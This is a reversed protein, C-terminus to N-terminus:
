VDVVETVSTIRSQRAPRLPAKINSIVNAEQKRIGYNWLLAAYRTRLADPDFETAIVKHGYSLCEAYMIMFVDCDLSRSPQQPLDDEFLVDFRDSSKKDKYRPHNQLDIGKKVYFDYAQLYLPIITAIKEIEALVVAYHGSSEYSDYLFICREDSINDSSQVVDSSFHQGSQELGGEDINSKNAEIDVVQDKSQAFAKKMKKIKKRMLGRIGKFGRRVSHMLIKRLFLPKKRLMVRLSSVAVEEVHIDPKSQAQPFIVGTTQKGKKPKSSSAQRIPIPKFVPTKMGNGKAARSTPTRTQTHENVQKRMLPKKAVPTSSDVKQKKKSHENIKRPPPDQFDDDSDVSREHQITDKKPIQLKTLEKKMPQINKFVVKLAIKPLVNSCCEYLWVQIALPMGQILYFQGGAKLQNNLSRALDEFSLSGWPFDKYRGSDVLDFHLRPIVVTEVDSLVLSHLFYLIAFKEADEDNNEGM